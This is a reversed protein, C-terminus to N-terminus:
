IPSQYTAIKSAPYLSSFDKSWLSFRKTDQDKTVDVDETLKIKFITSKTPIKVAAPDKVLPKRLPISITEKLMPCPFHKLGMPMEDGEDQDQKEKSEKYQKSVNKCWKWINEDAAGRRELRAYLDAMNNIPKPAVYKRPKNMKERLHRFSFHGSKQSARISPLGHRTKASPTRMLSPPQSSFRDIQFVSQDLTDDSENHRLMTERLKELETQVKQRAVIEAKLEDILYAWYKNVKSYEILQSLSLYSLIRKGIASPLLQLFDVTELAEPIPRDVKWIRKKTGDNFTTEIEELKFSDRILKITGNWIVMCDDLKKQAKSLSSGDTTTVEKIAGLSDGTKRRLPDKKQHAIDGLQSTKGRQVSEAVVMSEKLNDIEYERYRDYIKQARAFVQWLVPGGAMSLLELLMLAQAEPELSIFWKRDDTMVQTLISVPLATRNHDFPAQDYCSLVKRRSISFVSDKPRSNWISKLLLSLTWASRVDELLALLYLKKNVFSIREFWSKTVELHNKFEENDEYICECCMDDLISENIANIKSVVEVFAM